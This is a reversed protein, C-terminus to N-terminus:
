TMLYNRRKQARRLYREDRNQNRELVEWITEHAIKESVLKRFLRHNKPTITELIPLVIDLLRRMNVIIQGLGRHTSWAKVSEDMQRVYMIRYRARRALNPEELLSKQHQAYDYQALQMNTMINGLSVAMFDKHGQLNAYAFLDALIDDLMIKSINYEKERELRKLMKCVAVRSCKFSQAIEVQSAGREVMALLSKKDIKAM